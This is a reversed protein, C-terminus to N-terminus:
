GLQIMTVLLDAALNLHCLSKSVSSHAQLNDQPLCCQFLKCLFVIQLSLPFGTLGLTDPAVHKQTICHLYGTGRWTQSSTSLRRLVSASSYCSLLDEWSACGLISAGPSPLPHPYQHALQLYLSALFRYM